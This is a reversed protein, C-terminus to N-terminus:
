LLPLPEKLILPSTEISCCFFPRSLSTIVEMGYWTFLDTKFSLIAWSTLSFFISPIFSILSSDFLSPILTAISRLFPTSGSVILLCSYLFVWISLEKPNLVRAITSPLGLVHVSLSKKAFKKDKLSSTTILFVFNSKCFASSRACIKIPSDTETSFKSLIIFIIRDEFVGSSALPDINFVLHFILLDWFNIEKTSPLFPLFKYEKDSGWTRAIRSNLNCFNVASPIFSISTSIFFSAASIAFKLFIM